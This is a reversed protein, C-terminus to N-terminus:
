PQLRGFLREFYLDAGDAAAVGSAWGGIDAAQGSSM